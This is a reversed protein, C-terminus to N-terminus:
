SSWTPVLRAVEKAQSSSKRWHHYQLPFLQLSLFPIQPSNFLRQSWQRLHKKVQARWDICRREKM